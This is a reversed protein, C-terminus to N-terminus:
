GLAGTRAPLLRELTTGDAEKFRRLLPKAAANGILLAASGSQGVVLAVGTPLMADVIADPIEKSISDRKKRM